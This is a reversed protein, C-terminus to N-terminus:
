QEGCRPRYWYWVTRIRRIYAVFSSTYNEIKTKDNKLVTRTGYENPLDAVVFCWEGLPDFLLLM